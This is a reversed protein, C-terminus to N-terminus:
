SSVNDAAVSAYKKVTKTEKRQRAVALMLLRDLWALETKLYAWNDAFPMLDVGM